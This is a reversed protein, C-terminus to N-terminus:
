PVVKCNGVINNIGNDNQITKTSLTGKHLTVDELTLLGSNQIAGIGTSNSAHIHLGKIKLGSGVNPTSIVFTPSTSTSMININKIIDSEIFIRKNTVINSIGLNITVNMITPVFKITDGDIACDIAAKLSGPGSARTNDVTLRCFNTACVKISWNTLQGGDETPEIDDIQLKWIGKLQSGNLPTNLSNSPIHVLGDTPPCPWTNGGSDDFKIDFNQVGKSCPQDWFLSNVNLPNKMTFQLTNVSTHTGVLGIVNLDTLIGRDSIPLISTITQLGSSPITIPINTSAYNWCAETEFSRVASWGANGCLNNARVRWYFTTQGMLINVIQFSTSTQNSNVVIDLFNIDYALQFDYTITNASANWTFLPLTSVVTAMNTPLALVPVVPPSNVTLTLNSTRTIAGSVATITPASAGGITLNSITLISTNGPIVPNVSFSGTAGSPLGTVSLTVPSSFGGTSTVTVTSTINTNTCTTFTTPNASINFTVLSPSITINANNVDFFVNGSGKVMYRATTTLGSPVTIDHTGDNPTATALVTPYTLGGDYSLFIDVNACNVSNATTGAVNWTITTTNGENWTTGSSNATNVVFPGATGNTTVTLNIESNCGFVGTFDRAVGRFSMTRGVSPIVEWTNATSGTLVTAINPFYRRPSTTATISRFAPGNTNGPLPPMTAVANDMQDWAYFLANSNPDTAALTLVFPTSKPIVYNPQTTVVPAGNLTSELDCTHGSASIFNKIESLNVAHFYADSNTQVDPSCIGAYGMITSGSGPEMATPGNRNCSNNQTHNGGFQHGMEHAVYDITFPDGVPSGIGTIGRAKNGGSCIVSLGALGSGGTGFLHGMDYNASGIVNDCNTQNQSIMSGANGNTYPDSGADYYYLSTNNAILLLRVGFEKEYVGNIRNIVTTVASTVLAVESVDDAGHFTSYESTVAQALRYTRLKCDGARSGESIIEVAHREGPIFECGWKPAKIYDKKYYVIRTSKDSRQFHDIFIKGNEIDDIVARFGQMTYDIRISTLPNSTSVGLFTKINPHESPDEVMYYEVIRFQQATKDPMGVTLIVPSSNVDQLRELPASWLLTKIAQDDVSYTIFKNPFLDRKGLEKISNEDTITWNQGFSSFNVCFLLIFYVFCHRM